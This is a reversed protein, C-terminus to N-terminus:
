AACAATAAGDGELIEFAREMEPTWDLASRLKAAYEEGPTVRDNEILALNPRSMRARRALEAQTYGRVVRLIVLKKGFDM